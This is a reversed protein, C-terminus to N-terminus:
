GKHGAQDIVPKRFRLTMRDSEGIAAYKARNKAGLSFSPPLNWVGSEHDKTDAPNANIESAAELEFGAQEAWAIVQSQTTYGASGGNAADPNARHGVVGLIGGPKLVDFCGRFMAEATGNERWNHVNRFTVVRDASGPSGFQPHGEDFRRIEPRGYIRPLRALKIKLTKLQRDYYHQSSPNVASDPDIVAAVYHGNDRLLPALIETYWGGGPIIEIVTQDPYIEFFSLTQAPHRWIDRAVNAPERWHGAIAAELASSAPASTENPPTCAALATLICLHISRPM